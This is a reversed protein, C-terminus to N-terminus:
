KVKSIRSLVEKAASNNPDIKLAKNLHKRASKYDNKQEYTLGLFYHTMSDKPVSKLTDKFYGIAEDYRKLGLCTVGLTFSLKPEAPALKAAKQLSIFAQEIKGSKLYFTGLYIYAVVDNPNLETLSKFFNEENNTNGSSGLLDFIKEILDDNQYDMTAAKKYYDFAGPFNKQKVLDDGNKVLATYFEKIRNSNLEKAKNYARMADLYNGAVYFNDGQAVLSNFKEENKKKNLELAEKKAKQENTESYFSMNYYYEWIDIAINKDLDNIRDKVANGGFMLVRSIVKTDFNYYFNPVNYAVGYHASETAMTVSLIYEPPKYKKVVISDFDVFVSGSPTLYPYKVLREASSNSSNLILCSLVIVLSLFKKVM